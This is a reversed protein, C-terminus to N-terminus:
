GAAGGRARRRDLSAKLVRAYDGLGDSHRMTHNAGHVRRLLVTDPLMVERMGLERARLLWDLFEGVVAGESFPGVREWSERRALMTGSILAPHPPGGPAAPGFQLEHGFAIDIGPDSEVRDLLREVRDPPWLDDSDLFTLHRGNAVAAGRNRAAGIGRGEKRLCRVRSGFGEAVAASGDSSGDDVVIVEIARHTQALASEIAAALYPEGDRVAVVVSVLATASV